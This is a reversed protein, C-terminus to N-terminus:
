ETVPKREIAGPFLENASFSKSQALELAVQEVFMDTSFTNGISKPNNTGSLNPPKFAQKLLEKYFIAMFEQTVQQKQAAGYAAQTQIPYQNSYGQIGEIM